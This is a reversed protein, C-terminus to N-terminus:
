FVDALMYSNEGPWNPLIAGHMREVHLKIEKIHYDFHNIHDCIMDELESM